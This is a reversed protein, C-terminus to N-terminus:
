ATYIYLNGELVDIADPAFPVGSTGWRIFIDNNDPPIDELEFKGRFTVTQVEGVVMEFEPSALDRPPGSVGDQIMTIVPKDTAM